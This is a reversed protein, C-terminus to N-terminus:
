HNLAARVDYIEASNQIPHQKLLQLKKDLREIQKKVHGFM